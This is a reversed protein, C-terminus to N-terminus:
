INQNKFWFYTSLFLCIFNFKRVFFGFCLVVCHQNTVFFVGHPLSTRHIGSVCVWAHRRPDPSGPGERSGSIKPKASAKWPVKASIRHYNPTQWIVAHGWCGSTTPRLKSWLTHGGVGVARFSPTFTQTPVCTTIISILMSKNEPINGIQPLHYLNEWKSHYHM